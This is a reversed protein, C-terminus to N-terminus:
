RSGGSEIILEITFITYSARDVVDLLGEGEAGIAGVASDRLGLSM